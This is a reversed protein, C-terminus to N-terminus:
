GERLLLIATKKKLIGHRRHLAEGWQALKKQGTQTVHSLDTDIIDVLEPLEPYWDDSKEFDAYFKEYSPILESDYIISEWKATYCQGSEHKLFKIPM